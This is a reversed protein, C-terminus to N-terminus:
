PSRTVIIFVSDSASNGSPDTAVVEVLYAVEDQGAPPAPLSATFSEGTGLPMGPGSPDSYSTWQLAGGTLPDGEGDTGEAVFEISESMAPDMPDVGVRVPFEVDVTCNPCREGRPRVIAVDVIVPVRICVAKVSVAAALVSADAGHFATLSWSGELVDPTSTAVLHPVLPSGGFSFGGGSAVEGEGCQAVGDRYVFGIPERPEADAEVVASEELPTGACVVYARITPPDRSPSVIRNITTTWGGTSTPASDWVWGNHLGAVDWPDDAGPTVRFGGGTLVTGDRCTSTATATEIDGQPREVARVGSSEVTTVELNADPVDACTAWAVALPLGDQEQEFSAPRTVVVRWVEDSLPYSAEVILPAGGSLPPEPPESISYGGGLLREGDACRADLTHTGETEINVVRPRQAIRVKGERVTTCNTLLLFLGCLLLAPPLDRRHLLRAM